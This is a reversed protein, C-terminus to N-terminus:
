GLPQLSAPNTSILIQALAQRGICCHQFIEGLIGRSYIVGPRKVLLKQLIKKRKHRNQPLRPYRGGPIHAFDSFIDEDFFSIHMYLICGHTTMLSNNRPVKRFYYGYYGMTAVVPARKLLLWCMWGPQKVPKPSRKSTWCAAFAM